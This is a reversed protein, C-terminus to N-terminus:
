EDLVIITHIIREEESNYRPDPRILKTTSQKTEWKPTMGKNICEQLKFSFDHIEEEIILIKCM